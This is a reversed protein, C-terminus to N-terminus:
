PPVVGLRLQDVLQGSRNVGSKFRQWYFPQDGYGPSGPLPQPGVFTDSSGTMVISGCDVPDGIRGRQKGNVFNIPSGSRLHSDHAGRKPCAHTVWHDGQRHQARGNVFMDPSGQDTVRPPWCGHGTCRDNIRAAGPM